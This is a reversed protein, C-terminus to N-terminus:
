KNENKLGRKRKIKTTNLLCAGMCGIGCMLMAATMYTGTKPLKIGTLNVVTLNVIREAKTGTIAFDGSSEQHIEDNVYYEFINEMPNSITRIKYVITQGDGDVPIRYGDPAKTEKLYYTEGVKLNSFILIGRDNTEKMEVIESCAEDLYLTFEASQLALNNENVKTLKLSYPAFTDEVELLASGDEQISFRMNGEEDVATNSVVTIENNTGVNFTVKGNNVTFGESVAVEEIVHTGYTLGLVEARGNEDTVVEEKTGDPLTHCFTVGSIATDTDNIKKVINLKLINEPIIQQNYTSIFQNTNNDSTIKVVFTESNMLYGEPAKTEQITVTGLPLVNRNNIVYFDDGSIKYNDTLEFYGNEDTKLVWIRCPKEGNLEPDTDSQLDYYKVTFEANELTANGLPINQNTESDIKTGLQEIPNAQAVDQVKLTTRKGTTVTIPYVTTDLVYGKPASIEKVYYTGAKINVTNSNGSSDTTLTAAKSTCARDSYVGYQAGELSYCDNDATINKNASAKVLNADGNTVEPVQELWVIDQKDNYAVYVTYNNLDPLNGRTTYQEEIAGKMAQVQTDTLGNTQGSYVIGIMAHLYAYVASWSCGGFLATSESYWPGNEGFMLAIKIKKGIETSGDLKSVTYTGSPTPTQPEACYGRFTGNSTTITFKCTSWNGYWLTASSPTITCSEGVVARTLKNNVQEYNESLVVEGNEDFEVDATVNATGLIEEMIVSRGPLTETNEEAMVTMNESLMSFVLLASLLIKYRKMFCGENRPNIDYKCKNVDLFKVNQWSFSKKKEATFILM